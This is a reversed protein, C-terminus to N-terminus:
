MVPLRLPPYGVFYEVERESSGSVTPRIVYGSAQPDSLRCFIRSRERFVRVCYARIVYGSTRPAYLRCFIRSRERFVRVCYARIVYGSTQPASLRCFIRSRERFVRVCYARIIYGSTQPESLRCFIRSRERFPRACYARIIYVSTRPESLRCFIRSRKMWISSWTCLIAKITCVTFITVVVSPALETWVFAPFQWLNLWLCGSDICPESESCCSRESRIWYHWVSNTNM